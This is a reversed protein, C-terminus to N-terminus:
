QIICVRLWEKETLVDSYDVDKRQRSGRGFIKEEEEEYTLRDVQFIANNHAQTYVNPLM